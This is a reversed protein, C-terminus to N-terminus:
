PPMGDEIERVIERAQVEDVPNVYIKRCGSKAINIRTCIENERLSLEIMGALRKVQECWPGKEPWIEVTAHGPQSSSTKRHSNELSLGADPLEMVRQDEESDSFDLSGEEAIRKATEYFEDPVSIEYHEDIRWYFQRRRQAVRFPIGATRLEKCVFVCSEQDDCSWVRKMEVDTHSVEPLEEVLDADCDACRTFNPRYEAKCSPCFM